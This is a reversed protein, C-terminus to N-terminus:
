QPLRKRGSAKRPKAAALVEETESSVKPVTPSWSTLSPALAWWYSQGRVLRVMFDIDLAGNVFPLPVTTRALKEIFCKRYYSFRWREANIQAQIFVLAEVPLELEEKPIAVAVDDKAAFAYPHLKTTLPAGNFAITLADKYIHEESIDYWGHIGNNADACSVIPIQGTSEETLSHFDGAVLNFLDAIPVAKMTPVKAVALKPQNRKVAAASDLTKSAKGSHLENGIYAALTERIQTDLRKNLTDWTPKRSQLYAEPALETIPDSKDVLSTCFLEPVGAISSPNAIFERIIPELRALDTTGPVAIRKRKSKRFGDNAVRAWLIPQGKPHPIGKRLLVGVTQTQVPYFVEDPFSVVSLLTHHAFLPRRWSGEKGGESVVSMPVIAFLLGGDAMSKLATTVFEWERTGKKLAFPPNMFVRSIPEQGVAPVTNKYKASPNGEVTSQHLFKSFCNGEVINNKGDGRFIMNVIALSAVYPEQEIGFLNHKKFRDIQAAKSRARVHDFAAVLFGGTGCAPDFVLDNPGVGVTDVAFRTIHRPTLVIGIEKAGNGYRLFVEYFKGLVDTGSNMASKISLNHLEQITQVLAKKYKVHNEDSTPPEIRVFPHFEQKGHQSLVAHTRTNIDRILTPLDGDLDVSSKGLIALLLAAMVKARDNKNIGGDHLDRNIREASTMFLSENVSFDALDPKGSKLLQEVSSEDLFGTAEVGNITVPLYKGNCYLRTRVEFGAEANGAVGSILPVQLKKKAIIPRAYDHEAESLAQDLAARSSKAEIIWLKTETLKVINEPRALGLCRKIEPHSLCQNQTWVRGGTSREPNSVNWGFERLQSLIFAYAEVETQAVAAPRPATKKVSAPTPVRRKRGTSATPRKM